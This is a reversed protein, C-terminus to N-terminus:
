QIQTCLQGSQMHVFFSADMGMDTGVSGKEKDELAFWSHM